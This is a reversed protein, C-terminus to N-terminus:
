RISSVHRIIKGYVHGDVAGLAELGDQAEAAGEGISGHDTEIRKREAISRTM